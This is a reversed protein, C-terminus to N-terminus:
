ASVELADKFSEARLFLDDPGNITISVYATPRFNLANRDALQVFTQREAENTESYGVSIWVPFREYRPEHHMEGKYIEFYPLINQVSRDLFAKIDASYGGYTIESLLVVGQTNIVKSATQNATDNTILCMGPTKVWCGFCGLCPKIEERNLTLMTVTHGMNVFM